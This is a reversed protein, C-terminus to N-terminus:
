VVSKRDRAPTMDPTFSAVDDYKNLWGQTFSKKVLRLPLFLSSIPGAIWVYM